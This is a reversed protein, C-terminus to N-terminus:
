VQMKFGLLPEEYRFALKRPHTFYYVNRSVETGNKLLRALLYEKEPNKVDVDLRCIKNIGKNVKLERKLIEESEGGYIRKEVILTAYQEAKYDNIM